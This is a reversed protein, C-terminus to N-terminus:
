TPACVGRDPPHGHLCSVPATAALSNGLTGRLTKKKQPFDEWEIRGSQVLFPRDRECLGSRWSYWPSDPDHGWVAWSEVRGLWSGGRQPNVVEDKNGERRSSAVLDRVTNSLDQKAPSPATVGARERSDQPLGPQPLGPAADMDGHQDWPGKQGSAIGKGETKETDETSKPRRYEYVSPHKQSNVKNRLLNPLHKVWICLSTSEVGM